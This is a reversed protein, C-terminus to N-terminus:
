PRRDLIKVKRGAYEIAVNRGEIHGTEALGQRFARLRSAFLEPTQAGAFGIVPMTRSQTLAALPWAAAAGSLRAIFERRRKM